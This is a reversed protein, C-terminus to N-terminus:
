GQLFTKMEDVSQLNPMSVFTTQYVGLRRVLDPGNCYDSLLAYRISPQLPPSVHNCSKEHDYVQAFPPELDEHLVWGRTLM